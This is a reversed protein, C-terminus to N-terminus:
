LSYGANVINAQIAEDVAVSPVGSTIAGEYYTGTGGSSGDGGGRDGRQCRTKKLIKKV